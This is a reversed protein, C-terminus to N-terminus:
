EIAKRLKEILMRERDYGLYTELADAAQHCLSKLEEILERDKEIESM